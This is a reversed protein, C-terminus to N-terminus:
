PFVTAESAIAMSTTLTVSTTAVVAQTDARRISVTGAIYRSDPGADGLPAQLTFGATFQRNTSLSYWTGSTTGTLSLTGGTKTFSVEFLGAIASSTTTSITADTALWNGSINVNTVGEGSPGISNDWIDQPYSTVGQNTISLSCSYTLSSVGLGVAWAEATIGDIDAITAYSISRFNGVQLNGSTPVFAGADAATLYASNAPTYTGGAFFSRLNQPPSGGGLATKVKSLRVPYSSSILPM